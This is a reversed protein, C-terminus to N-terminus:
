IYAQTEFEFPGDEAQIQANIGDLSAKLQKLYDAWEVKQGDIDYNPKPKATVEGIRDILQDRIEKLREVNEEDTRAM